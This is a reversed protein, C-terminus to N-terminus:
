AHELGRLRAAGGPRLRSLRPEPLGAVLAEIRDALEDPLPRAAPDPDLCAAVLAALAPPTRRPLSGPAARLQPFRRGDAAFPRVGAIAEHLTAGLGWVDAPSGIAGFRAPDCQEPAMYADTGVPERPVPADLPRAVSLDILRPPGGLIVNSPKVDLHVVEEARLYHLVGAVCLALPLLQELAIVDRRVVTSLRPGEIHELVLHPCPGDLRAGFGRLLGPHALRDLLAAEATLAALARRDAVLDPRLLKAVVTARLRDDWALYVEHRRGGGLHRLVHRGPAITDGECLAWSDM